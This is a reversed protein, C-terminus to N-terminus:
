QRTVHMIAVAVNLINEPTMSRPNAVPDSIIGPFSNKLVFAKLNTVAPTPRGVIDYIDQAKRFDELDIHRCNSVRSFFTPALTVATKGLLAAEYAVTGSVTVVLESRRIVEHSDEDERLFYLNPLRSLKTFFRLGRDGVANSHEKVLVLWDDPTIRWLNVTNTFQNEYYRGIVDISAEPQKHLALFVFKRNGVEALPMRKVFRYLEWNLEEKARVRLRMWRQNILTPDGSDRSEGTIFRKIRKLRVPISRLRHLASDNAALYDPKKVEIHNIYQMDAQTSGGITLLESEFEDTFFAFRGNPIRVGAPKLFRCNLEPENETIRKILLEHAWTFEGFIYRIQNTKIFNYIPQQIRLLYSIGEEPTYKLTRDGYVLENLKFEGIKGVPLDACKKNLYLIQNEHYSKLLYEYLKRGVVVWFINYGQQQLQQAIAHFFYTKSYNAVFCINNESSSQM